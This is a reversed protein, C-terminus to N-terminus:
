PTDPQERLTLIVRRGLKQLEKSEDKVVENPPMVLAFKSIGTEYRLWLVVDKVTHNKLFGRTIRGKRWRVAVEIRDPDEKKPEAKLEAELSMKIALLQDSDSQDLSESSKHPLQIPPDLSMEQPGDKKQEQELSAAIAKALDADSNSMAAFPNNNSAANQNTNNNSDLLSAQIAAAIGADMQADNKNNGKMLEAKRKEFEAYTLIKKPDNWSGLKDQQWFFPPFRGTVVFVSHNSDRLSGIYSSLYFDSIQKPQAPLYPCGSLSNLDYWVKNVRRVAFWHAGHNVIFADLLEPKETWEKKIGSSGWRTVRLNYLTGLARELVPLSFNGAEDVHANGENALWQALAADGGGDKPDATAKLLKIEDQKVQEAIQMLDIETYKPGQLLNNLCHRACLSAEQKEHYVFTETKPKEDHKLAAPGRSAVRIPGPPNAGTNHVGDAPAPVDEKKEEDKLSSLTAINSM